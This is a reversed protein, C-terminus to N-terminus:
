RIPISLSFSPAVPVRDRKASAAGDAWDVMGGVTAGLLTLLALDAVGSDPLILWAVGGAAVGIGGGIGAGRPAAGFAGGLLAAAGVDAWGYQRVFRRLGLGVVSGAILGWGANEARTRIADRNQGGILGGMVLGMAAGTGTGSAACRDGDLTRNCPMMTGVLGLVGGSYLGLAAGTVTWLADGDPSQADVPAVVAHASLAATVLVAIIVGQRGRGSSSVTVRPSADSCM